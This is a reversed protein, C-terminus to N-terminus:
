QRCQPGNISGALTLRILLPWRSQLALLGGGGPAVVARVLAAGRLGLWAVDLVAGLAVGLVLALAESNPRSWPPDNRARPGPFALILM